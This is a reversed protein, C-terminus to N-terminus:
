EMQVAWFLSAKNYAHKTYYFVKPRMSTAYKQFGQALTVTTLVGIVLGLVVGIEDVPMHKIQTHMYFQLAAM